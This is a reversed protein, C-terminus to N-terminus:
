NKTDNNIALNVSGCSKLLNTTIKMTHLHNPMGVVSVRLGQLCAKLLPERWKPILLSADKIKLGGFALKNCNLNLETLYNLEKKTMNGIGKSTKGDTKLFMRKTVFKVNILTVTLWRQTNTFSM